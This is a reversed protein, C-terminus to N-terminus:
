RNKACHDAAAGGGHAWAARDGVTRGDAWGSSWGRWCRGCSRPGAVRHTSALPADGIQIKVSGAPLAAFMDDDTQDDGAALMRAAPGAAAAVRAAIAGKNVAKPRVEVVRVGGVLRWGGADGRRGPRAARATAGRGAGARGQSLSVRGRGVQGGRVRGADAAGAGPRAAGARAADGGAGQRADTALGAGTRRGRCFGHEAHLGIPVRGLWAELWERTRGSVVHVDTAPLAALSGAVGAVRRGAAGTPCRPSGWWRATTISCCRGPRRRRWREMAQELSVPPAAVGAGDTVASGVRRRRGAAAARTACSGAAWARADHEIVPARMTSM